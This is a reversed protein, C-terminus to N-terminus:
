KDNSWNYSRVIGNKDFRIQLMKLKANDMSPLTGTGYFYLWEEFADGDKDISMGTSKPAGLWDHVQTKTTEGSKAMSEFSRMNFDRGIQVTSCASLFLIFVALTINLLSTRYSKRM